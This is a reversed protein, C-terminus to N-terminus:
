LGTCTPSGCRGTPGPRCPRRVSGRIPRLRPVGVAARRGGARRPVHDGAAHPDHPPHRQVRFGRRVPQGHIRSRVSRRPLDDRRGGLDLPRAVGEPPTPQPIFCHTIVRGAPYCDRSGTVDIRGPPAAVHPNRRLYHDAVAYHWGANSNNCGFWDGWDNRNRGYQTQGTQPDLLGEDPRVRLDRGGINVVEGTKASRIAGGSDGNALYVWNDLGWRPHNVRHQQNGEHFGSFLTRHIDARGDGDSDEAYFTEPAATIIVGKRWPMVGSPFAIPELFVTSKDYRGDGDTDELFRIRGGPTGLPEPPGIHGAPSMGLPYDAMEVVWAKGDPGWQIDICDMVLPEAAMLEAKFGPRLILSRLSAEASRAPPEVDGVLM